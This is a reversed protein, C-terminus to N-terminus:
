IKEQVTYIMSVYHGTVTTIGGGAILGIMQPVALSMYSVGSKLPSQHLGAQFYFPMYYIVQVKDTNRM